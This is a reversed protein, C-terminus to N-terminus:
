INSSVKQLKKNKNSNKKEQIKLIEKYEKSDVIDKYLGEAKIEGNKMVYIYDFYKLFNLQSTIIIRTKDSLHELIVEKMITKAINADLASLPQDMIVIDKNAYLCRALSLRARQGGSLNMGKDGLITLDKNPMNAIDNDYRSYKLAQNYKEEDFESYFLINERISKSQIWNVQQLYSISDSCLTIKPICESTKLHLMEGLIANLLSTKGSGVKGIIAVCDGKKITLNINKM